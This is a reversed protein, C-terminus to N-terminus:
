KIEDELEEKLVNKLKNRARMLRTQITTEKESILRSIEKVSYEEYYYLHIVMRYKYPLNMVANYLIYKEDNNDITYYDGNTYEDVLIVKRKWSSIFNHKCYNVTIKVLYNKLHESSSFNVKSTYLKVFTNQVADEADQKSKCISYAIKFLSDSYLKVADIYREDTM